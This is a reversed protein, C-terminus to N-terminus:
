VFLQLMVDIEDVKEKDGLKQFSFSLNRLMRQIMDRNGCPQYYSNLSEINLKKIFQDIDNKGFVTGKSFANVYFLIKGVGSQEGEKQDVYALVFHEPLNVGYVPINVQQCVIQYIISLLLPNGKHSELVTNIFSNQPAHYNSTNGGFGHTSFLVHNIVNIQELATMSENLELWVDKKIKNLQEAIVVPDLDPYQYRAVVIAGKLLDDDGTHIWLKLDEVLTDFQIKHVIHEIRQQQLADFSNSWADELLPIANRGISILKEEIHHYIEKDTDDLLSILAKIETAKVDQVDM